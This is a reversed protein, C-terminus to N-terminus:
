ETTQGGRPPQSLFRRKEAVVFQCWGTKLWYALQLSTRDGTRQHYGLLGDAVVPMHITGLMQVEFGHHSLSSLLSEVRPLDKAHSSDDFYNGVISPFGLDRLENMTLCEKSRDSPWEIYIRGHNVLRESGWQILSSPDDIHEIFHASYIADFTHGGFHPKAINWDSLECAEFNDFHEGRTLSYAFLRLDGRPPSPWKKVNALAGDGAGVDLVRSHLPLTRLFIKGPHQRHYAELLDGDSMTPDFKTVFWDNIEQHQSRVSIKRRSSRDGTDRTTQSFDLRIGHVPCCGVSLSCNVSFQLPASAPNVRSILPEADKQSIVEDIMMTAM